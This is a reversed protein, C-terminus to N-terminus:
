RQCSSASVHVDEFFPFSSGQYPNVERFSPRGPPSFSCSLGPMSLQMRDARFERNGKIPV